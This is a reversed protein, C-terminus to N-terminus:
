VIGSVNIFFTVSIFGRATVFATALGNYIGNAFDTPNAATYAAFSVATVAIPGLAMALTISTNMVGQAVAQLSNIGNQDYDLPAQPNNSGNIIAASIALNVNLQIWDVGYWQSIDAGDMTTGWKLISTSIGGEAGISVINVGATKLTQRLASNGVTPYPTVGFLFSFATPTLRNVPSPTRNLTVYMVSALSFETAPIASAEIMTVVDKMAATYSSYTGTTTTVYFYVKATPAEYNALFTLFSSVADWERPVLYIYFSFPNATIWTTLAVVGEAATGEGLELVYVSQTNGQAFFTTAMSLLEAVDALTATGTSSSSGPNVVLPYTFTSSGTITFLVNVVNYGTPSAGTITGPIVDSMTWGHPAATTVTAVSGSWTITSIMKGGALLSTLDSLQTLLSKTQAATNTGGQSILAGTKQLTIPASAQNLSVAVTVIANSM